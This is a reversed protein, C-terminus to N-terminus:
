CIDAVDSVSMGEGGFRNPVQVSMLRAERLATIAEEPFRAQADVADAHRAAVEAVKDLRAPSGDDINAAPMSGPLKPGPLTM